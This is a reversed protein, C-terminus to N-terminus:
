LNLSIVFGPATLCLQQGGRSRHLTFLPAPPRKNIRSKSQNKRTWMYYTSIQHGGCRGPLWGPIPAWLFTSVVLIMSSGISILTM